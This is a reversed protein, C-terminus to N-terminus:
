PRFVSDDNMEDMKLHCQSLCSNIIMQCRVTKTIETDGGEIGDISLSALITTLTETSDYNPHPEFVMLIVYDGIKTVIVVNAEIPITTM